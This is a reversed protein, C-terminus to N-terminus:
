FALLEQNSLLSVLIKRTKSVYLLKNNCRQKGKYEKDINITELLFVPCRSCRTNKYPFRM